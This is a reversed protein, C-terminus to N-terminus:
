TVHCTSCGVAKTFAPVEYDSGQSSWDLGNMDLNGPRGRNETEQSRDDSDEIIDATRLDLEEEDDSEHDSEFHLDDDSDEDIGELDSNAGEDPIDFRDDLYDLIEQMTYRRRAGAM